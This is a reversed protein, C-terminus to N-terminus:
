RVWNFEKRMSNEDCPCVLFYLCWFSYVRYVFHTRINKRTLKHYIYVCYMCACLLIHNDASPCREKAVLWMTPIHICTLVVCARYHLKGVPWYYSLLGEMMIMTMMMISSCTHNLFLLLDLLLHHHKREETAPTKRGQKSLSSSMCTYIYIYLLGIVIYMRIEVKAGNIKRRVSHWTRYPKIHTYRDM